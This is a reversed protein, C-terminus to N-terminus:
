RQRPTSAGQPALGYYDKVLYRAISRVHTVIRGHFMGKRERELFHTVLASPIYLVRFGKRKARFCLDIDEYLYFFGEDFLGIEELTRRRIILAAGYMWDVDRLEDHSWDEMTYDRVFRSRPFFDRVFTGEILINLPSPFPRCSHQLSGDRYVLKPGGIAADPHADMVDVLVDLSGPHVLTDVDLIIVYRGSARRFIQNRAPAVGRNTGNCVLDVQPFSGELMDTTGDASDNDVVIVEYSKRWRERFISELLGGLMDRSNCTLIGISADPPAANM